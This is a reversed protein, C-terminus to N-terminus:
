GILCGSCIVKNKNIRNINNIEELYDEKITDKIKYNKIKTEVFGKNTKIKAYIEGNNLYANVLFGKENNITIPEGYYYQCNNKFEDIIEEKGNLVYNFM